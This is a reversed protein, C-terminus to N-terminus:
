EDMAQSDVEAEDAHFGAPKARAIVYGLRLRHSWRLSRPLM